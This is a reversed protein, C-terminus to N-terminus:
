DNEKMARAPLGALWCHDLYKNFSIVIMWGYM